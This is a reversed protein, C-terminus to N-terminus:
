QAFDIRKISSNELYYLQNTKADYEAIGSGLNSYHELYEDDIDLFMTKDRFYLFLHRGDKHWQMKQIDAISGLEFKLYEETELNKLPFIELLRKGKVAIRSNDDMFSFGLADNTIKEMPGAVPNGYYFAGDNQLLALKDGRIEIQTTKGPFKVTFVSNTRRNKNYVVLSSENKAKDFQTWALSARSVAVASIEVSSSAKAIEAFRKTPINLIYIQNSNSLILDPEGSDMIIKPFGPLGATKLVSNVSTSSKSSYNYVFYNKQNDSLLLTNLDYDQYLVNAGPLKNEGLTLTSSSKVILGEESLWFSQVNGSWPVSTRAKPVLVAFKVESVLAPKVEITQEWEEYNENVIRLKYKKPFLDNMLVGDQFFWFNEKILEGNLYVAARPFSRVYIGGVKELSFDAIDLRYGQAYFAVSTGIVFFAIVLLIFISRRTKHTM